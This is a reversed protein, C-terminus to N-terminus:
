FVRRQYHAIAAVARMTMAHEYPSATDVDHRQLQEALRAHVQEVARLLPRSALQEPTLSLTLWFLVNGTSFLTDQDSTAQHRNRSTVPVLTDRYGFYHENWSGDSNQLDLAHQHFRALYQEVQQHRGIRPIDNQRAWLVYRTLGLLRDISAVDTVPVDRDLEAGAIKDLSWTEGQANVWSADAGLYHSLGFLVLSLNTGGRVSRQEWRVLDDVTGRIADGARLESEGSISSMALTTLLEGRKSQLGFGIRPVIEKSVTDTETTTLLAEGGCPYNWCLAGIANTTSRKSRDVILETENGFAWCALMVTAPSHKEMDLPQNYRTLLLQLNDRLQVGEPTLRAIAPTNIKPIEADTKFEAEDVNASDSDNQIPGVLAITTPPTLMTTGTTPMSEAAPQQLPPVPQMPPVPQLPPVPPGSIPKPLPAAVILPAITKGLPPVPPKPKDEEGRDLIAKLFRGRQAEAANPPCVVAIVVFCVFGRLIWFEIRQRRM